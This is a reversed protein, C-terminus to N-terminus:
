LSHKQVRYHLQVLGDDFREVSRLELPVHRHRRATLPIGDGIFVPAVSIIFEDIANEDLFAGIMEGGGMLWINKGAQRRLREAFVRIPENIFQVGVPVSTPPSRRSFVYHVNEASFTAGMAVSADLTKRGLITADISRSFGPLGYFGKPAPRRTLWDLSGDSRAIYGDVSM